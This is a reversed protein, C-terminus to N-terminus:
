FTPAALGVTGTVISTSPPFRHAFWASYAYAQLRVQLTGSLIEPMARLHMSGEYLIYDQENALVVVDGTGSTISGTSCTIPLNGDAVVDLGNLSGRVGEAVPATQMGLANFKEYMVFLPRAQSDQAQFSWANARRPHVWIATPSRFRLTEIFNRAAVISRFQTGATAADFFVTSSCTVANAKTLDTNSAASPQALAGLHQGNAGTGSICQRDLLMDYDASLDEFIVADMSIPSQELLQLSIDQQGAITNVAATVTATTIDTSSVADAQAAQVAVTSGTKIKPLNIVDTGPPLQRRQARNAIVRGARALPVYADVLWLPPVFEGGTGDTTNPNVRREYLASAIADNNRAEVEVERRHQQLRERAANADDFTAFGRGAATTAVLDRFYSHKLDESYTMAEHTVYSGYRGGREARLQEGAASAAKSMRVEETELTKIQKNDKKIAVALREFQRAEADTLSRNAEACADTLSEMQRLSQDRRLIAAALVPNAM